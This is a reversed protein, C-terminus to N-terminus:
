IGALFNADHRTREKPCRVYAKDQLHHQLWKFYAQAHAAAYSLRHCPMWCRTEPKFSNPSPCNFKRLDNIPRKILDSIMACKDAGYAYLHAYNAIVDALVTALDAFDVIGDDWSLGNTDSAHPSMHYPRKFHFTHLVDEAAIALEKIVVENAAGILSEFDIVVEM